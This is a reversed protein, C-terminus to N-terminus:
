QEMITIPITDKRKQGLDVEGKLMLVIIDEAIVLPLTFTKLIGIDVDKIEWLCKLINRMLFKMKKTVVKPPIISPRM